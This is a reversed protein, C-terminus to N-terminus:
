PEHASFRMLLAEALRDSQELAKSGLKKQICDRAAGLNPQRARMNHCDSGLVVPHGERMHKLPFRRRRWDLFCGGNIQQYLPLSMVRDWADTRKQFGVYREIHALVVTLKQGLVIERVNEYMGDDWQCFPMELLLAKTGEICLRPLMEAKGIGPFFYVEAGLYIEADRGEEGLLPKVKGFSDARKQLFHEISDESAYFHPTAVIKDVGQRIEADLLEKTEEIGSSGDDISPLLHTHFDIM